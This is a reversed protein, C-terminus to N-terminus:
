ERKKGPVFFFLVHCWTQITLFDVFGLSYKILLVKCFSGGYDEQFCFVDCGKVRKIFWCLLREEEENRYVM